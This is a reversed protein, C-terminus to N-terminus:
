ASRWPREAIADAFVDLDVNLLLSALMKRLAINEPVPKGKRKQKKRKPKTVLLKQEPKNPTAADRRLWNYVLNPKVKLKKAVKAVSDGAAVLSLANAKFEDSHQKRTRTKAPTKVAAPKKAM